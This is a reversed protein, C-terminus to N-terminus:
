TRPSKSDAWSLRRQAYEKSLGSCPEGVAVVRVWAEFLEQNKRCSAGKKEKRATLGRCRWGALASEYQMGKGWM